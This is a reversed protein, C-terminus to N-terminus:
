QRGVQRLEGVQQPLRPHRQRKAATLVVSEHGGAWPGPSRRSRSDNTSNLTTVSCLQLELGALSERQPRAEIMQPTLASTSAQEAPPWTGSSVGSSPGGSPESGLVSRRGNKT